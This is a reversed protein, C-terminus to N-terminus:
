FKKFFCNELKPLEPIIKQKDYIFIAPNFFQLDDM